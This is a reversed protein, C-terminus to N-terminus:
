SGKNLKDFCVYVCVTERERHKENERHNETEREERQFLIKYGELDADLTPRQQALKNTQGQCLM